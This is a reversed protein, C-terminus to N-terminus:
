EESKGLDERGPSVVERSAESSESMPEAASYSVVLYLLTLLFIPLDFAMINSVLLNRKIGRRVLSRIIPVFDATFWISTILARKYFADLVPWAFLFCHIYTMTAKVSDRLRQIM